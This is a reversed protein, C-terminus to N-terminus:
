EFSEVAVDAEVRAGRRDLTLRKRERPAGHLAALVDDKSAGRAALGDIALLEDGIEVDLLAQPKTRM